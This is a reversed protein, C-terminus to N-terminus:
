LMLCTHLTTLDKKLQLGTDVQNHLRRTWYDHHSTWFVGLFTAVAASHHHPVERLHKQLRSRGVIATHSTLSQEVWRSISRQEETTLADAPTISPSASLLFSADEIDHVSLPCDEKAQAPFLEGVLKDIMAPPEVCRVQWARERGEVIALVIDIGLRYSEEKTLRKERTILDKYSPALWEEFGYQKGLVIKDVSSALPLIAKIAAARLSMFGWKDSLHLVDTWQALTSIPVVGFESYGHLLHTLCVYQIYSLPLHSVSSPPSSTPERIRLKHHRFGLYSSERPICRRASWSMPRLSKLGKHPFQSPYPVADERGLLLVYQGVAWGRSIM